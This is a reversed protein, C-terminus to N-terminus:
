RNLIQIINRETKTHALQQIKEPYSLDDRQAATQKM